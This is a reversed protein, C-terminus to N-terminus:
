KLEIGLFVSGFGPAAVVRANEVTAGTGGITFLGASNVKITGVNAASWDVTLDYQDTYVTGQKLVGITGNLQSLSLGGPYGDGAAARALALPAAYKYLVVVNKDADDTYFTLTSTAATFQVEGAASPANASVTAFVGDIYVLPTSLAAKETVHATTGAVFKEENVLVTPRVFGAFAVGMFKEDNSGTGLSVKGKGDAGVLVLPSGEVINTATADDNIEYEGSQFFTTMSIDIM